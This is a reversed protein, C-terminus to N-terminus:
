NPWASPATPRRASSPFRGRRQTISHRRRGAQELWDSLFRIADYNEAHVVVLAGTERASTFVGMLEFDRLALDQYTIFVKYSSYGYEVLAPLEQGLVAPSPDSIILHFSVDVYCKGDALAHYGKL